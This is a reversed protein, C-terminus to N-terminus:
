QMRGITEDIMEGSNVPPNEQAAAPNMMSPVGGPGGNQPQGFQSAAIMLQQQSQQEFVIRRVNMLWARFMETQVSDFRGFDDSQMFEMLKQMHEPAPELPGGEPVQSALIASIAEEALLKPGTAQEPPRELYNDPDLDVSKYLDRFMKYVKEPTVIGLQIALPSITLAMVERLTQSLNQRNTNLMTAKFEFDVDFDIEDREVKEYPDQGKEPMGLVRFEKENPLFRRNLRHTLLWVTAFGNFYRRLIQESRVDTQGLLSLTTGVTRFAAAKGTPVRGFSADSQMSLREVFQQLLTMTNITFTEGKSPWQPFNIDRSPDDLPYGTGPEVYIPEPKVGSAARYFFIPTNTITGWDFHQDMTTQMMDQSSELIEAMSIGYVRNPVSIFSSSAIPRLVPIGPYMESLLAAKALFDPGDHGSRVMWFIVDEELGDGDVDWRGYREIVQRDEFDSASFSPTVGEIRDKEEKPQEEQQGSAIPSKGAKITEFDEESLLDYTGSKMRRRISDLSAKCIRDVYPAGHPNAPGPPQLNGSRVPFVVDEFDLIEWAPGDHIRVKKVIVAELKGDDLEYFDVTATEAENLGNLYSVEWRWGDDDKMAATDRDNNFEPFLVQFKMLLQVIHDSELDLGDLIRVDHITQDDKVWHVFQFLTEDLLFNMISDDVKSEGRNEFFLQYDIVRNIREEKQANRRQLAKAQMVPRISKVANELAAATRLVSIMIIPVWFNACDNWPWVKEELYGRFKAYRDKRLDMRTQRDNLNQKLTEGIWKIVADKDIKLSRKRRPRRSEIIPEAEPAAPESGAPKKEQEDAM